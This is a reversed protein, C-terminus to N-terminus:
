PEIISRGWADLRSVREFVEVEYLWGHGPERNGDKMEWMTCSNMESRVTEDNRTVPASAAGAGTNHAAPDLAQANRTRCPSRRQSM